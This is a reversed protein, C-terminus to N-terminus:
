AQPGAESVVKLKALGRNFDNGLMKDMNMLMHVAKFMFNKKGLMAWTVLTQDGQRKFIFEATNTARFPKFFDLKILVLEYERADTVIMAGEGAKKNGKWATASGVGSAPGSYTHEMQPDLAEFPSWQQWARMNSVLEFPVSAPADIIISREIRMTESQSAVVIVFIVVIAAVAILIYLLM